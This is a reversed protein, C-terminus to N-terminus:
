CCMNKILIYRHITHEKNNIDIGRLIILYEGNAPFFVYPRAENSVVAKGDKDKFGFDWFYSQFGKSLNSFQVYGSSSNSERFDFDLLIEIAEEKKNFVDNREITPIECSCYLSVLAILALRYRPKKM